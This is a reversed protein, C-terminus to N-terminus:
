QGEYDEIGNLIMQFHKDRKEVIEKPTDARLIPKNKEGVKEFGIIYPGYAELLELREKPIYGYPTM